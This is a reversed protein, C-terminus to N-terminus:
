ASSEPLVAGGPHREGRLGAQLHQQGQGLGTDGEAPESSFM